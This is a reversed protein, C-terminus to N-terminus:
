ISVTRQWKSAWVTRGLEIVGTAISVMIPFFSMQTDVVIPAIAIVLGCVTSVM